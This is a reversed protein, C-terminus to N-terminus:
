AKLARWAAMEIGTVPRMSPTKEQILSLLLCHQWICTYSHLYLGAALTLVVAWAKGTV